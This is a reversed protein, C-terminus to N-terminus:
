SNSEFKGLEKDLWFISNKEEGILKAKEILSRFLHEEEHQEAVFWQLFNFTSYNKEQLFLEVMANIENSVEIEKALAMQLVASVSDFDSPPAEIAKLTVRGGTAIIYNELKHMHEEELEHHNKFFSAVGNLGKSSAWHSVALYLRSVSAEAHIQNNLRQLQNDSLM